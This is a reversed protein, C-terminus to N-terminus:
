CDRLMKAMDVYNQSFGFAAVTKWLYNHEVRDFAKEQLSCDLNFLKSVELIVRVLSINDFPM